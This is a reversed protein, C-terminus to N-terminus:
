YSRLLILRPPVLALMTHHVHYAFLTAISISAYAISFWGLHELSAWALSFVAYLIIKM